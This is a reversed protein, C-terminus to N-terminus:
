SAAFPCDETGGATGERAEECSELDGPMGEGLSQVPQEVWPESGPHCKSLVECASLGGYDCVLSIRKRRQPVGFYQADHTTWACSWGNGYVVGSLPWGKEPVPIDPAEPEVVRICEELVAAYDRGGNSSFAGAVNEWIQFRPRLWPPYETSRVLQDSERLKKDHERMEKIVRIQEMFLGSRAGSLGARKGAVSLDQCPSGGVVVDTLEIEAGNIQTIDGLHKIRVM